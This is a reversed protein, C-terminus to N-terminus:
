FPPALATVPLARHPGVAPQGYAQSAREILAAAAQSGPFLMRHWLVFVPLEPVAQAAAVQQWVEASATGPRADTATAAPVALVAAIAPDQFSVTDLAAMPEEFGRAGVTQYVADVADALGERPTTARVIAITRPM